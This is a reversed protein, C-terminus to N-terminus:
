IKKTYKELAEVEDAKLYPKLKEYVMQHYDNLWDKEEKTLMSVKVPDLDIPAYTITEFGYFTGFDNTEKKICLMENEIRIGYKNELYIGPENTTIMGLELPASDQREPVIQWRFGNPGEHVSLLNGVGHGTGCKYDILLDWIPGRALIDLNLGSCGKLFTAKSLNIVSKLVTTYHTKIADSVRGISYTRTIDTTGEFYHGGSDILLLGSGTIKSSTNKDAKYHMMAAHENYACITDFSLDIFGNQEKRLEEMKDSIGLESLDSKKASNTKLYHMLRFVAVGDKEHAFRINKVEVDNKIAKLIATPDNDFIVTSNVSELAKYIAYNVKNPNILVKKQRLSKVYDYIDNYSKVTIENSDLYQNISIDLKRQDIFLTVSSDTIVTFALFVPTHLIDNGRLNYLWAQDELSALIFADIGKEKLSERVLALKEEYSKGTYFEDLKYLLSFPMRPRDEWLSDILNDNTVIDVDEPISEKIKTATLTNVLKGDFVLKMGKQLHTKLFEFLTPTNPTGMKMIAIPRNETQKAAQIFYRGDVWLYAIETTILLTGASGTFGTLFERIKFYSSIYESSHYDSTPILYADYGMAIMKQQFLKIVDM